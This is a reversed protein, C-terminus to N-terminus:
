KWLRELDSLNATPSQPQATGGSRRSPRQTPASEVHMWVDGKEGKGETVKYFDPFQERLRRAAANYAAQSSRAKAIYAAKETDSDPLGKAYEWDANARNYAETVNEGAKQAAAAAAKGADRQAARDERSLARDEARNERAVARQEAREERAMPDDVDRQPAKIPQKTAPDVVIENTVANRYYGDRDVYHARSSQTAPRQPRDPATFVAKGTAPDIVTSGPAVTMREPRRRVAIEAELKERELQDMQAKRLLADQQRQLLEQQQRQAMGQAIAPAHFADFAQERGRMPSILSGLLGVTAGGAMGGLGGGTAGGRAAGILANQLINKWSRKARFNGQEDTTGGERVYQDRAFDLESGIQNRRYDRMPAAFEAQRAQQSRAVAPRAADAAAIATDLGGWGLNPAPQTATADPLTAARTGTLPPAGYPLAIPESPRNPTPAVPTDNALPVASTDVDDRGYRYMLDSADAAIDDPRALLDRYDAAEPNLPPTLLPARRM